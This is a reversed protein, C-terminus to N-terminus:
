NWRKMHLWIIKTEDIQDIPKNKYLLIKTGILIIDETNKLTIAKCIHVSYYRINKLYTNTKKINRPMALIKNLFTETLEYFIKKQKPQIGINVRIVLYIAM